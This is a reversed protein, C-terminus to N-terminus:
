ILKIKGEKLKERFISRYDHNDPRKLQRWNEVLFRPFWGKTMSTILLKAGEFYASTPHYGFDTPILFRELATVYIEERCLKLRDEENLQWFLSENTLARDENKKIKFYLPKEYYAIAAHIDDHVYKRKVADQFFEENSKNLYAKKAGFKEEWNAYLWRFAEEDIKCGKDQFFTIDFMTKRWHVSDWFSHSVKLTYLLDPPAVDVKYKEVIKKFAWCYKTEIRQPGSPIIEDESIYDWDDPERPFDPFYQKAARSGILMINNRNILKARNGSKRM